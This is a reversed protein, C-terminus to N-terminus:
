AEWMKVFQWWFLLCLVCIAEPFFICVLINNGKSFVHSVKLKSIGGESYQKLSELCLKADQLLTCHCQWYHHFVIQGSNSVLSLVLLSLKPHALSLFHPTPKCNCMQNANNSLCPTTHTQSRSVQPSISFSFTFVDWRLETEGCRLKISDGGSQSFMEWVHSRDKGNSIDKEIQWMYLLQIHSLFTLLIHMQCINAKKGRMGGESKEKCM